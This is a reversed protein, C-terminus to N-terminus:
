KTESLKVLFISILEHINKAQGLEILPIKVKLEAMTRIIIEARDVSNAGMERLSDNIQISRNELEPVVEKTIIKIVSFVQEENM